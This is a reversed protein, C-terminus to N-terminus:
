LFSKGHKGHRLGLHVAISEGIDAFTPRAGIPRGKIGPGFVLVPVHERTHDTGPWTPDCGHDATLIALDGPKLRAEIEPLRRDFAELAAAYGPVDRRHGYLM